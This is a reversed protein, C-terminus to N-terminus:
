VGYFSTFVCVIHLSRLATYICFSLSVWSGFCQLHKTYKWLGPRMKKIFPTNAARNLLISTTCKLNQTKDQQLKKSAGIDLYDYRVDITINQDIKAGIDYLSWRKYECLTADGGDQRNLCLHKGEGRINFWRGSSSENQSTNKSEMHQMENRKGDNEHKAQIKKLMPHSEVCKTSYGNCFIFSTFKHNNCYYHFDSQLIHYLDHRPCGFKILNKALMDLLQYDYSTDNKNEFDRQKGNGNGNGKGKGIPTQCLIQSPVINGFITRARPRRKVIDNSNDNNRVSCCKNCPLLRSVHNVSEIDSKSAQFLKRWQWSVDGHSSPRVFPNEILLQGKDCTQLQNCDNSINRNLHFGNENEENKIPISKINVCVSQSDQFEQWSTSMDYDNNRSM